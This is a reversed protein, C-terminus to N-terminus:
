PEYIPSTQLPLPNNGPRPTSVGVVRVSISGRALVMVMVIVVLASSNNNDNNGNMESNKLAYSNPTRWTTTVRWETPM